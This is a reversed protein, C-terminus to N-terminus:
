VEEIAVLEAGRVTTGLFLPGLTDFKEPADSVFFQHEPVRGSAVLGHASLVERTAEAVAQSGDVLAV